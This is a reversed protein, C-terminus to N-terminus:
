PPQFDLRLYAKSCYHQARACEMECDDDTTWGGDAAPMPCHLEQKHRGKVARFIKLLGRCHVTTTKIRSRIESDLEAETWRKGKARAKEFAGKVAYIFCALVVLLGDDVQRRLTFTCIGRTLEIGFVKEWVDWGYPCVAYHELSDDGQCDRCLRCGDGEM